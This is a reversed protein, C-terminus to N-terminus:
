KRCQTREMIRREEIRRELENEAHHRELYSGPAEVGEYLGCLAEVAALMSAQTKPPESEQPYTLVVQAPGVPVTEPVTFRVERSAPIDVTQEIRRM